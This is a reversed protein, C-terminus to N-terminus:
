GYDDGSKQQKGAATAICQPPLRDASGDIQIICRKGFTINTEFRKLGFVWGGPTRHDALPLELEAAFM